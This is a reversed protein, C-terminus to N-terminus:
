FPFIVSRFTKYFYENKRNLRLNFKLKLSKEFSSAQNVIIFRTLAIFIILEYKLKYLTIVNM